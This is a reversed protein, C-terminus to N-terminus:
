GGMFRQVWVTTLVGSVFGVGMGILGVKFLKADLGSIKTSFGKHEVVNEERNKRVEAYIERRNERCAQTTQENNEKLNQNVSAFGDRMEGRLTQLEKYLMEVRGNEQETM